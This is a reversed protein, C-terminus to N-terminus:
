SAVDSLIRRLFEKIGDLSPRQLLLPQERIAQLAKPQLAERLGAAYGISAYEAMNIIANPNFDHSVNSDCWTIPICGCAFAEPIKETYYGPNMSNEPCLCFQKDRCVDRKLFDRNSGHSEQPPFARGYCDVEMVTRLASLLTRRPEVLHSSMFVARVQRDKQAGLPRMLLEIEVAPGLRKAGAAPGGEHSWNFMSMWTPFRFHNPATVGLDSSISFEAPRANWRTNESTQYLTRPVDRRGALGLLLALRHGLHVGRLRQRFPGIILLDCRRPHVCEIGPGHLLGLLRLIFDDEAYGPWQCLYAVKLKKKTM